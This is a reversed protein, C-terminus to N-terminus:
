SQGSEHLKGLASCGDTSVKGGESVTAYESIAEGNQARIGFVYRQGITVKNLSTSDVSAGSAYFLKYGKKV